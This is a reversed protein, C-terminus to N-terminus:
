EERVHGQATLQAIFLFTNKGNLKIPIFTTVFSSQALAQGAENQASSLFVLKGGPKLVRTAEKIFGQYFRPVNINEHEAWPPETIIADASNNAINTKLGDWKQITCRKVSKLRQKQYYVCEDNIDGTYLQEYQKSQAVAKAISGWGGFLDIVISKKNLKALHLMIDVVDPRLEGKRLKKSTDSTEGTSIMFYVRGDSSRSLLIEADPKVRNPVLRTYATIKKEILDVVKESITEQKGNDVFIIRFTKYRMDPFNIRKSVIIRAAYEMSEAEFAFLILFLNNICKLDLQHPADYIIAGDLCHINKAGYKRLIGAITEELGNNVSAYWNKLENKM